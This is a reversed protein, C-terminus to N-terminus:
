NRSGTRRVEDLFFRRAAVGDVGKASAKAFWEKEFPEIARNLEAMLTADAVHWEHVGDKQLDSRAKLDRADWAGSLRAVAEGSVKMLADRDVQSMANWKGENLIWSFSVAVLSGPFHTVYKTFPSLKFDIMASAETFTGDVTGKSLIEYTQAQAGVIVIAGMREMLAAGLHPPIQLKLGKIDSVQRVPRKNNFLDKAPSMTVGILRVGKHENAQVFYRMHTRWLALAAAQASEASNPFEAVEHLQIRNKEFSNLLWAIDAAGKEVLDFQRPVPGLSAASFEIKVRGNTAAEVSKAWPVFMSVYWVSTRPLFQNFVLKTEQASAPAAVAMAVALSLAAWRIRTM